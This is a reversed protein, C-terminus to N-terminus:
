KRLVIRREPGQGVQLGKKVGPFQRRINPAGMSVAKNIEDSSAGSKLLLLILLSKISRLEKLEDTNPQKQAKSM